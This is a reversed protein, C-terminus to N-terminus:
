LYGLILPICCIIYILIACYELKILVFYGFTEEEENGNRLYSKNTERISNTSLKGYVRLADRNSMASV